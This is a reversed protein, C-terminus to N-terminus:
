SRNSSAVTAEVNGAKKLSLIRYTSKGTKMDEYIQSGPVALFNNIVEAPNNQNFTQVKRSSQEDCSLLVNRTIDRDVQLEFGMQQLLRICAQMKEVPMNDAYLFFGSSKLIRYVGRYFAAIDSYSHSSEINIVYDFSSDAFSLAEADGSHFQVQKHRYRRRCFAIAVPSLDVGIVELPRFYRMITDVTGGRGCGVDLVSTNNLDHRGIVELVLKVSQRNLTHTALETAAHEPTGDAVYGYNLFISHDGFITADLQQSVTDYFRMIEAKLKEPASVMSGVDLNLTLPAVSAADTIKSEGPEGTVSEQKQMPLQVDPLQGAENALLKELLKRKEPSLNAIREALDKM